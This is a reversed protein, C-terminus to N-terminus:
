VKIVPVGALAVKYEIQRHIERRPWSSLRRNMRRSRGGAGHLSLNELVIAAHREKATQILGKSVLHLRQRVRNRERRGERGLLRRIVRSDHAKKRTIRRRRRFHTAQVVRVEPFFVTVLSATRGEAIVGDLSDENTDLAIAAMPLPPDRDRPRPPVVPEGSEADTAPPVPRGHAKGPPCAEPLGEADRARGRIGLPHVAQVRRPRRLPNPVRGERPPVPFPHGPGARNQRVRQRNAPVGGHALSPGPSDGRRPLRSGPRRARGHVERLQGFPYLYCLTSHFQITVRTTAFVYM